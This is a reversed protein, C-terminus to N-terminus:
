GIPFDIRTRFEQRFFSAKVDEPSAAANDASALEENTGYGWLAALCRVSNAHAAEIDFIRDGIMWAFDRDITREDLLKSLLVSKDHTAYELKDGYIRSFYETLEFVDLIRKAFREQKSTCVYLDFGTTRLQGLMERVGVFVSADRWGELDYCDRYDHALDARAQETGNPLLAATWVEVPPGIFRDLSGRYDIQWADLVKCLCGVIGPKSDILTGDLDFILAPLNAQV